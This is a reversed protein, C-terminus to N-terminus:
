PVDDVWMLVWCYDESKQKLYVAHDNKSRTFGCTGVLHRDWEQNWIRGSQKLGYLGKLLKCVKRKRSCSTGRNESNEVALGQPIEMYIEEELKGLLYATKIDTQDIEYNRAAALALIIRLSTLKVVPAITELYDIGYRQTFGKAVLHAKYRIVEGEAGRKVRFVWRCKVPTPGRPLDVIEWTGNDTISKLDEAIAINWELLMVSNVAEAYSDPEDSDLFESTTALFAEHHYRTFTLKSANERRPRFSAQTHTIGGSSKELGNDDESESSFQIVAEVPKNEQIKLGTNEAEGHKLNVIRIDRVIKIKSGVLVRYQNTGEYGLVQCEEGNKEWKSRKAKPIHSFAQTGFPILHSPNPRQDTWLQYPTSNKSCTPSRNKLYVATHIAEGWVNDNMKNELIMAKVRGILTRNARESVGNQEPLYPATKEHSIGSNRLYTSFSDSTYEGGNDSRLAKIKRNHYNEVLAKYEKFKSFTESKQYITFVTTYRTHDDIFLLFYRAGGLSPINMPGAFDTHILELPVTTIRTSPLHNPIRTQKTTVCSVCTPNSRSGDITIEPHDEALRKVNDFSIHGLRCHWDHLTGHKITVQTPKAEINSHETQTQLLYANQELKAIGYLKRGHRNSVTNEAFSVVAGAAQIYRVSILGSSGMEPVYLVKKLIVPTKVDKVTLNLLVDGEGEAMMTAGNAILIPTQVPNIHQFQTRDSTMHNTAGSDLVWKSQSVNASKEDMATWAQPTGTREDREVIARHASPQGANGWGQRGGRGKGPGRKNQLKVPCKNACHGKEKCFFCSDKGVQEKDRGPGKGSSYGGRGNKGRAYFANTTESEGGAQGQVLTLQQHELLLRYCIPDYTTKDYDANNCISTRVPHYSQPLNSLLLYKKDKVAQVEGAAALQHFLKELSSIYDVLNDDQYEVKSL